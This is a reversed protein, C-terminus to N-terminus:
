GGDGADGHREVSGASWERCSTCHCYGMGAPSGSVTLEVAACFCGGKYSKDSM